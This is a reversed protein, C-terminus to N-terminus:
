GPIGYGVMHFEFLLFALALYINQIERSLLLHLVHHLLFTM